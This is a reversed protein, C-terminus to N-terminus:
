RLLYPEPPVIATQQLLLNALLRAAAPAMVFGNRFHGCNFFLNAIEPHPGISPIGDPSGPRLGAWHKEIACQKLPPLLSTAFRRLGEYAKDTTCKNFQASRFLM